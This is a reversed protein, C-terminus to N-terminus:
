KNNSINAKKNVSRIYSLNVRDMLYFIPLFHRKKQFPNNQM